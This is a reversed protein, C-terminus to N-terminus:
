VINERLIGSQSKKGTVCWDVTFLPINQDFSGLVKMYVQTFM